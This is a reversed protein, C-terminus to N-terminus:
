ERPHELVRLETIEKKSLRTYRKSEGIWNWFAQNRNPSPYYREIITAAIMPISVNKTERHGKICRGLPLLYRLTGFDIGLKVEMTNYIVSDIFIITSSFTALLKADFFTPAYCRYPNRDSTNHIPMKLFKASIDLFTVDSGM